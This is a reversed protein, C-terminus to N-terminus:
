RYPIPSPPGTEFDEMRLPQEGSVTINNIRSYPPPDPFFGIRVQFTNFILNDNRVRLGLGIGSLGTGKSLIENTGSLSSIDAFGFFAFRFGNVNVPSFVVTELGLNIRQRGQVSDNRFGSFGNDSYYNLYEDLNRDFGRTFDLRVFNRIMNRGLPLLNSFYRTRIYLIGQETEKGNLYSGFGASSHLFGFGSFSKGFSIESGAYSRRKFENIEKGLTVKVLSGYPVDETRGYGYVLNTKYFRQRTLALSGLFMRYKQLPHYSDPHIFPRDLVNNNTYRASLIFRTVTEPDLLFSRSLWYDQLNYKLPEPTNMTDLDEFRYMHRISVGGAYKTSSSMFKRSLDIGYSEEGIGDHYFVRLNVFSRALNDVLYHVGFGPSDPKDGDFPMEFGLEHGLGFINNEFISVKGRTLGSPSYEGGLSYVDKTIVQIDVEEESVPIVNIRADDIFSLERLLRENDSLLIPSLTDGPEFLLNNRIVPDLTNVHTKNLLNQTRYGKYAAPNDIDSGFVSLRTVDIKRIKHGTYESYQSESKGSVNKNESIGPSVVVIEYLKRTLNRKAAKEKLSDLFVTNRDRYNIKYLISKGSQETALVRLNQKLGSCDIKAISREQSYAPGCVFSLLTIKLLLIKINSVRTVVM